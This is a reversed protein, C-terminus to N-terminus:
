RASLSPAITLAGPQAQALGPAGTTYSKSCGTAAAGWLAILAAGALLPGARM